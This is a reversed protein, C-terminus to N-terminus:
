IKIIEPLRNIPFLDKPFIKILKLKHTEALKEKLKTNKDYEKLEGNLGFFEVLKGKILFDATYSSNPYPINRQHEINNLYLWDDIIKEAFSDCKHGDKAIFKKAFMVPNSEFGAAEIAKNWTDFRDRAANYHAFERKLPIRDHRKYFSRIQKCIEKESIVRDKDKCKRSCYFVQGEQIFKKGCYKCKLNVIKKKRKPFKSNNITVACSRSCYLKISRINQPTRVFTKNCSPRACKFKKQKTKAKSQCILSCYPKWGFKKAENIRRVTKFFEKKCFACKIKILKMFVKPSGLIASPGCSGWGQM